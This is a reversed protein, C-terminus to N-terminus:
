IVKQRDSYTVREVYWLEEIDSKVSELVYWGKGDVRIGASNIIWFWYDDNITIGNVFLSNDAIKSLDRAFLTKFEENIQTHNEDLYTIATIGDKMNGNFTVTFKSDHPNYIFLLTIAGLIASLILLFIIIYVKIKTSGNKKNLQENDDEKV